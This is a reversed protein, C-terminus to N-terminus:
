INTSLISFCFYIFKLFNEKPSELLSFLALYQWMNIAAYLWVWDDFLVFCQIIRRHGDRPIYIFMGKGLRLIELTCEVLLM